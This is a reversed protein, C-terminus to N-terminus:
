IRCSCIFKEGILTQEKFKFMGIGRFHINYYYKFEEINEKYHKLIHYVVKWVDGTWNEGYKLIGNEYYHRIPIKLQENYNLPLIDDIFILGNKSLFKLSNNIDKFVYECQHMGDIFVADYLRLKCNSVTNEKEFQIFKELQSFYDDSTLKVLEGNKPIFKPDPDVGTKNTFHVDNFTEGYEVGIELYIDDINTLENIIQYRNALNTNYKPKQFAIDIIEYDSVSLYLLKFYNILQENPTDILTYCKM